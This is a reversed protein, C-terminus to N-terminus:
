LDCIYGLARGGPRIGTRPTPPPPTPLVRVNVHRVELRVVEVEDLAGEHGDVPSGGRQM